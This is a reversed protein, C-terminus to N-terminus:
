RVRGSGGRGTIVRRVLVRVMFFRGWSLASITALVARVLVAGLINLVMSHLVLGLILSLSVLILLIVLVLWLWRSRRPCTFTALTHALAPDEQDM